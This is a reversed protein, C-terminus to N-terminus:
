ISSRQLYAEFNVTHDWNEMFDQYDKFHTSVFYQFNSKRESLWVVGTEM